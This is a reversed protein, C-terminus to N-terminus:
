STKSKAPPSTTCRAYPAAARAAARIKPRRLPYPFSLKRGWLRGIVSRPAPIRQNPHNPKLALLAKAAFAIAPVAKTDVWRAPMDPMAIHTRTSHNYRPLGVVSPAAEPAIAPRAM